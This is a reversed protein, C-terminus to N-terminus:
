GHTALGRAENEARSIEAISALKPMVRLECLPGDTWLRLRCDAARHPDADSPPRSPLTAAFRDRGAEIAVDVEDSVELSGCRCRM